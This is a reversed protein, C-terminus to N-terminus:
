LHWSTEMINRGTAEKIVEMRSGVGADFMNMAGAATLGEGM